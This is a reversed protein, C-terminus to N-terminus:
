NKGGTLLKPPKPAKKGKSKKGKGHEAEKLAREREEFLRNYEVYQPDEKHAAVYEEVERRMNAKSDALKKLDERSFKEPLRYIGAGDDMPRIPRSALDSKGHSLILRQVDEKAESPDRLSVKEEKPDPVVPPSVFKDFAWDAYDMWVLCSYSFGFMIFLFIGILSWFGSAFVILFVPWVAAGAFLVTQPFTGFAMVFANKFLAWPGLKYSTGLAIMWLSVLACLAVFIYGIVKSAVLWGAMPLSRAVYYDALNGTYRAVFLIVSFLIAAELVSWVGRKIGRLFDKFIFIGETRILNRVLYAAGSLGIGGIVLAPIMLGFFVLDSRLIMLEYIGTVDPLVPYGVGLGSGWPGLVEQSGISVTRYLLLAIMPLFFLVVLFNVLILRGFRGKFTDWFLRIRGTPPITRQIDGEYEKGELWRSVAGRRKEAMLKEAFLRIEPM